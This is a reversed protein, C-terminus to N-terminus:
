LQSITQLLQEGLGITYGRRRFVVRNFTDAILMTPLEGGMDDVTAADAVGFHVNKPLEGFDTKRFKRAEAESCFLLVIHGGWADLAERSASLDRLMHNSPENGPAILGVIYYGRGTTSLLSKRGDALDCYRHESDFSGIVMVENQAERMLLPVSTEENEQLPFVEIHALVGGDALRTGSVLMYDGKPLVPAEQQLLSITADEPYELQRPALDQLRCISFHSYYRPDASVSSPEFLLRLTCLAQEAEEVSADLAFVRWEGEVMVRVDSTVPNVESPWGLTRALAVFFIDRSRADTLRYRWVSAPAMRIGQPNQSADIRINTRTWDALANINSRFITQLSDPVNDLFFARYATLAEITVRPQAVFHYYDDKSCSMTGDYPSTLYADRLNEPTIDRLDKPCLVRLISEAHQRNKAERLFNALAAHNGRSQELLDGDNVFTAEYATRISDEQALRLNCAERQEQSVSPLTNRSPPPTLELNAEFREGSRHSLMLLVTDPVNATASIRCFGYASDKVAWALMDGRGCRIAAVGKRDTPMTVVPYFEAYNYISFRVEADPVPRGLSDLVRVAAIGVPAYNATVNIETFCKNRRVCDEPGDYRGFVKTHMLIGRSAPENFWGLDLVPEPECAGLFHWGGDAWAEVWAHNDDTHAWRPTYVQRAPIGVARLAAVLLTSEEGCRGIASQVSQLPSRTRADSPQYTVKEHCWHNVELVAETMSLHEVRPKLERYFVMRSSDLPENNVRVPLVFHRWEREPVTNGWPMTRRAELSCDVNSKFFQGSYDTIDPLPMYAYLFSLADREDDTLMSDLVCFLAPEGIEARRASLDKQLPTVSCAAFLFAVAFLPIFHKM